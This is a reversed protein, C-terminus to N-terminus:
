VICISTNKGFYDWVIISHRLLKHCGAGQDAKLGPKDAWKFFFFFSISFYSIWERGRGGGVEYRSDEGERGEM